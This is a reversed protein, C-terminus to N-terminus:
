FTIIYTTHDFLELFKLFIVWKKKLYNGRPIVCKKYYKECHTRIIENKSRSLYTTQDFLKLIKQKNLFLNTIEMLTTEIHYLM